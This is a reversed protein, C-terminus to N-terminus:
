IVHRSQESQLEDAPQEITRVHISYIDIQREMIM